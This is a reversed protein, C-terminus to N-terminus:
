EANWKAKRGHRWPVAGCSKSNNKMKLKKTHLIIENCTSDGTHNANLLAANENDAPGLARSKFPGKGTVDEENGSSGLCQRGSGDDCIFLGGPRKM